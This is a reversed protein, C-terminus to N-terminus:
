GGRACGGPQAAHALSRADWTRLVVGTRPGSKESDIERAWGFGVSSWPSDRALSLSGCAVCPLLRRELEACNVEQRLTGRPGKYWLKFFFEFRGRVLKM